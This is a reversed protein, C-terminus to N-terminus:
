GKVECDRYKEDELGGGGLRELLGTFSSKRFCQPFLLFHQHDAKEM